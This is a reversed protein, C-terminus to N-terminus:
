CNEVGTCDVLPGMKGVSLAGSTMMFIAERSGTWTLNESPPKNICIFLRLFPTQFTIVQSVSSSFWSRQPNIHASGGPSLKVPCRDSQTM